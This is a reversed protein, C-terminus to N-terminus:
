DPLDPLRPFVQMIPESVNRQKWEVTAFEYKYMSINLLVIDAAFTVPFSLWASFWNCGTFVQRVVATFVLSSLLYAAVSVVLVTWGWGALLSWLIVGLPGLVLLLELAGLLLVLEPRRHLQPYRTYVATEYQDHTDKDSTVDLDGDSRVFSYSDDKIAAQAFHSEPSISHRIAAFGGASQMLQRSVMWCSSLVPPRNFLRRPPVLEWFYRMAQLPPISHQLRNQPVVTVMHKHRSFMIQELQRITAPGMRVDVGCFLILEGNAAQALQDYAQNKPLWGSQPALGKIFRVGDHAYSRIIEPTRDASQDDLVLVELKPYDSALIADL